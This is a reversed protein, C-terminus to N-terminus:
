ALSWSIILPVIFDCVVKYIIYALIGLMLWSFIAFNGLGLMSTLRVSTQALLDSFYFLLTFVIINVLVKVAM